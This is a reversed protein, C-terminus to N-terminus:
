PPTNRVSTNSKGSSDFELSARRDVSYVSQTNESRSARAGNQRVPRYTECCYNSPHVACWCCVFRTSRFPEVRAHPRCRRPQRWPPPCGAWDIGIPQGAPEAPRGSRRRFPPQGEPQTTQGHLVVAQCENRVGEPALLYPFVLLVFTHTNGALHSQSLGSDVQGDIHPEPICKSRPGDPQLAEGVSFGLIPDCRETAFDFLHM